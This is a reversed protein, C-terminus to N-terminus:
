SVACASRGGRARVAIVTHRNEDYIRFGHQQMLVDFGSERRSDGHFEIAIAGIRALWDTDGMCLQVEAGEIDVKLLDVQEFGSVDLIQRITMGRISGGEAAGNERVSFGNYREPAKAPDAELGRAESWVAAQLTRCRGSAILGELNEELLAFNSPCPEVALLSVGPYLADLYRSALGINAGLDIATACRPVRKALGGYVREEVVEQFTFFDASAERLRLPGRMPSKMHLVLTRRPDVRRQAAHLTYRRYRLVSALSMLPWRQRIFSLTWSRMPNLQM